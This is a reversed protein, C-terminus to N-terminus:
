SSGYLDEGMGHLRQFEYDRRDGALETVAAITHANHTAFQPYFAQRRSLVKKACAIYSVDTNAKRTFVPYGGFGEVQAHKIESDWYAGKVLRIPIRRGTRASLDTLLDIVAMARKQYTQLALGFGNWGELADDLFVASFVDLTPMLRDAEETDITLAIGNSRALLALETVRPTLEKLVREGKNLEFRPHLASLKVSISAASFIDDGRESDGIARIATRYSELYRESDEGTLAAEGLMDFSHRYPRNKKQRSRDLAEGITRGMVYQHGMIKMAQRIATRVMPEGSRNVLRGLATRFNSQTSESLAVLKGTLMLGWTSANVLVSSSKGLHSEWNADGLKDAILKEATDDDPIRLLAEALCMLVVGEESSLDYEQMFADLVGQERRRERVAAVLSQARRNVRDEARPDFRAEALLLRMAEAEDAHYTRDLEDRLPDV